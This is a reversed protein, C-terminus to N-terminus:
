ERHCTLPSMRSMANMVSAPGIRFIRVCGPPHRLFGETVLKMTAM